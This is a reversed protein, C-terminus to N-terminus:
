WFMKWCRSWSSFNFQHCYLSNSCCLSEWPLSICISHLLVLGHVEPKAFLQRLFQFSKICHFLLNSILKRSCGALWWGSPCRCLPVRRSVARCGWSIQKPWDREPTVKLLCTCPLPPCIVQFVAVMPRPFFFGLAFCVRFAGSFLHHQCLFLRDCLFMSVALLTATLVQLLNEGM